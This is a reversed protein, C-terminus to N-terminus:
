GAFAQEKEARSAKILITAQSIERQLDERMLRLLEERFGISMSYKECYLEDTKPKRALECGGRMHVCNECSALM